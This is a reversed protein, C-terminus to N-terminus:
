AFMKSKGSGMHTAIGALTARTDDVNIAFGRFGTGHQRHLGFAGVYSGDFAQGVAICQVGHLFRKAFVM